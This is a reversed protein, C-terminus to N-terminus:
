CNVNLGLMKSAVSLQHCSLAEFPPAWYLVSLIYLISSYISYIYKLLAPSFFFNLHDWTLKRTSEQGIHPTHLMCCVFIAQLFAIVAVGSSCIPAGVHWTVHGTLVLQTRSLTTVHDFLAPWTATYQLNLREALSPAEWLSVSSPCCVALNLETSLNTRTQPNFNALM